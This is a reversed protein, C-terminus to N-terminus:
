FNVVSLDQDGNPWETQETFSGRTTVLFLTHVMGIHINTCWCFSPHFFFANRLIYFKKYLVFFPVYVRYLHRMEWFFPYTKYKWQVIINKKPYFLTYNPYTYDYDNNLRLRIFDIFTEVSMHTDSNIFIM